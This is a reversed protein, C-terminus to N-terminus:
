HELIKYGYADITYTVGEYEVTIAFYNYNLIFTKCPDGHEGYTVAVITGDDVVYKDKVSTTTEETDETTEEETTIMDGAAAIVSAKYGEITDLLGKVEDRLAAVPAVNAEVSAIFAESYSGDAKFFAISEDLLRVKDCASAYSQEIVALANLITTSYLSQIRAKYNAINAEHTAIVEASDAKEILGELTAIQTKADEINKLITNILVTDLRSKATNRIIEANTVVSTRAELHELRAKQEAELRAKEEAELRAKEEEIADAELEDADPIRQGDLMQHGIIIKDQLDATIDNLQHYLDVLQGTQFVGEDDYSGAWIDYRVSYNQSLEIDEKLKTANQYTLIFYLSAGSEIAKLIGYQLNGEMNIPAGAYQMYGHLVIGVFPVTNSSSLYRSSDIALNLIHDAYQWTYANGGEIMVNGYNEALYKMAAITFEKSDERNYPEDEDFDSNLDTGLTAASINVSTIGKEEDLFKAYNETLKTYFRSFYAPSIALDFSGEHTQHTSSYVRKATYRDDITKVAHKKLSLGDFSGMNQVYAFDFDPFIGLNKGDSTSAANLAAANELLERFGAKGGVAKEWKLGYPVTSYMGGNAYGTLKFNVNTIDGFTSLEDYMTQIDDFTTLPTMVNVPVSLIKEVTEITGFTEIYLPLTSEVDEKGLRELVSTQETIPANETGTSFPSTLYAQYAKAMGFYSAPYYDIIGKEAAVKDDTLMIYRVTYNGVYKRDSVVTWSSNNGVSISDAINYTDSPRPNVSIQVTHYEASKGLHYSKISALAEGEEMIAFFGSSTADKNEQITYVGNNNVYSYKNDSVIGFVPMRFTEQYKGSITHYAYDQGYIQGGITGGTEALDEFRFIAGSGDPLFTYGTNPLATSYRGAGMYPLISVGTLQYLSEDFRIGNAPLTVSMGLEDLTYELAMKFVPPNLDESVYETEEHDLDLEEYSYEPVYTKIYEELQMLEAPKIEGNIQYVAGIKETIPLEGYLESLKRDNGEFEAPDRLTFFVMFRQNYYWLKGEEEMAAKMTEGFFQEFREKTILRPVLYKTEERGITYELRIGNKINKLKIQNNLAADTYSNFTNTTSSETSTYSIIIQSLLDAKLSPVAKSAGVDYPNSFLIEETVTNRTAVEGTYSNVWLQYDGKEFAMTMTALKEEPTYYVQTLYNIESPDIKEDAASIDFTFLGAFSGLVMCVTLLTSVIKNLKKM